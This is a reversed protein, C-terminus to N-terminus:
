GACRSLLREAMADAMADIKERQAAFFEAGKELIGQLDRFDQYNKLRVEIAGARATLETVKPSEPGATNRVEALERRVDTQGRAAEGKLQTTGDGGVFPIDPDDPSRAPPLESALTATLLARVAFCWGIERKKKKKHDM